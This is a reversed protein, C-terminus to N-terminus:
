VIGNAIRAKAIMDIFPVQHPGILKPLESAVCMLVQDVFADGINVVYVEHLGSAYETLVVEEQVVDPNTYSQTITRSTVYFPVFMGSNSMGWFRNSASSINLAAGIIQPEKNYM